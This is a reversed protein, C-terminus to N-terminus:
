KMLRPLSEEWATKRAFFPFRLVFSLIVLELRIIYSIKPILFGVKAVHASVSKALAVTEPSMLGLQLPLYALVDFLMDVAIKLYGPIQEILNGEGLVLDLQPKILWASIWGALREVWNDTFVDAWFFALLVAALVDVLLILQVPRVLFVRLGMIFSRLSTVLRVYALFGSALGALHPSTLLFRFLRIRINDSLLGVRARLRALPDRDHRIISRYLARDDPLERGNIVIVGRRGAGEERGAAEATM